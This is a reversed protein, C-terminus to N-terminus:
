HECEAPSPSTTLKPALFCAQYGQTPGTQEQVHECIVGRGCAWMIGYMHCGMSLGM